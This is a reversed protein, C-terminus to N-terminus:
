TTCLSITKGRAMSPESHDESSAPHRELKQRRRSLAAKGQFAENVLSKIGSLDWVALTFGGGEGRGCHVVPDEARKEKGVM